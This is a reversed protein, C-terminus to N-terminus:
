RFIFRGRVLIGMKPQKPRTNWQFGFLWILQKLRYNSSEILGLSFLKFVRFCRILKLSNIGNCLLVSNENVVLLKFFKFGREKFEKVSM